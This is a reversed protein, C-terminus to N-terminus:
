ISLPGIDSLIQQTEAHEPDIEIVKRYWEAAQNNDRLKRYYVDGIAKFIRVQDHPVDIVQLELLYLQIVLKWNKDALYLARACDLSESLYPWTRFARQYNAMAETLQRCENEHIKGIALM